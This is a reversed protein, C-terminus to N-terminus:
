GQRIPSGWRQLAPPLILLPGCTPLNAVEGRGYRPDGGSGLPPAKATAMSFLPTAEPSEVSQEASAERGELPTPTAQVSEEIASLAGEVQTSLPSEPPGSLETVGEM